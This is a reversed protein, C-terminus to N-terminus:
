FFTYVTLIEEFLLGKVFVNLIIAWGEANERQKIGERELEFNVDQTVFLSENLQECSSDSGTFTYILSSEPESASSISM